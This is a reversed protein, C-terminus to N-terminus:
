KLKNKVKLISDRDIIKWEDGLYDTEWITEASNACADIAQEAYLILAEIMAQKANEPTNLTWKAKCEELFQEATKM